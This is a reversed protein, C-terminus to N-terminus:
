NMKLTLRCPAKDDSDLKTRRHLLKDNHGIMVFNRSSTVVNVPSYTLCPFFNRFEVSKTGEACKGLTLIKDLSM